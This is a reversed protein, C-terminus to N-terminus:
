EEVIKIGLEQIAQLFGILGIRRYGDPMVPHSCDVWVEEIKERTVEVKKDSM